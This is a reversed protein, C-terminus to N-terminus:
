GRHRLPVRYEESKFHSTEAQREARAETLSPATQRIAGEIWVEHLFYQGDIKEFVLESGNPGPGNGRDSVATTDVWAMMRGDTSQVRLMSPDGSDVMVKYSGAPLQTNGVTFPFGITAEESQPTTGALVIAATALSGVAAIAALRIIRTM